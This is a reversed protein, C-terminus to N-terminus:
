PIHLYAGIDFNRKSPDSIIDAFNNIPNGGNYAGSM